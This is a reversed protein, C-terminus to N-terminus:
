VKKEYIKGERYDQWAPEFSKRENPVTRCAVVRSQFLDPSAEDYQIRLIKHRLEQNEPKFAVPKGTPDLVDPHIPIGHESLVLYSGRSGGGLT